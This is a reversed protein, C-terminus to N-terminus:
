YFGRVALDPGWVGRNEEQRSQTEGRGELRRSGEEGEGGEVESGRSLSGFEAFLVLQSNPLDVPLIRQGVARSDALGSSHVKVTARPSVDQM